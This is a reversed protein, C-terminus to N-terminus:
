FRLNVGLTAEGQFVSSGSTRALCAGEGDISSCFFRTDADVLTWYARLGLTVDVQDAVPIRLGGGLSGSFETEAGYGDAKFRTLGVTLSLYSRLSPHQNFLLTGGLQYYETTVDVSGPVPASRDLRTTQTSYLFEYFSEPDRYIAFGVGWSGGEELETRGAAADDTDFEGGIRYGGFGSLEYRPTDAHAPAGGVCLTALAGSLVLGSLWPM